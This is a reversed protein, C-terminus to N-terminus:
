QDVPSCLIVDWFATGKLNWLLEPCLLMHINTNKQLKYGPQICNYFKDTISIWTRPNLVSRLMTASRIRLGVIPV